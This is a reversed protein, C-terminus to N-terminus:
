MAFAARASSRVAAICLRCSARWLRCSARWRLQLSARSASRSPFCRMSAISSSSFLACSAARWASCRALSTTWSLSFCRSVASWAARRASSRARSASCRRSSNTRSSSLARWAARCACSWARSASCRDRSNFTHARLTNAYASIFKRADGRRDGCRPRLPVGAVALNAMTREHRRWSEGARPGPRFSQLDLWGAVGGCGARHGLGIAEALEAGCPIPNTIGSVNSTLWLHGRICVSLLISSQYTIFSQM